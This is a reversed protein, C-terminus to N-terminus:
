SSSGLDSARSEHTGDNQSISGEFTIPLCLNTTQHKAQLVLSSENQGIICVKGETEKCKNHITVYGDLCGKRWPNFIREDMSIQGELICDSYHVCWNYAPTNCNYAEVRSLSSSLQSTICSLLCSVISRTGGWAGANYLRRDRIFDDAASGYCQTVGRAQSTFRGSDFSLFAVDGADRMYSFPNSNFFVDSLDVLLLYEADINHLEREYVEFRADNTSWSTNLEVQKFRFKTTTFKSVFDDPLSDHVVIASLSNLHISNWFNAMYEFGPTVASSRQPDRAYTFFSSLVIGQAQLARSSRTDKSTNNITPQHYSHVISLYVVSLWLLGFLRRGALRTIRHAASARVLEARFTPVNCMRWRFM